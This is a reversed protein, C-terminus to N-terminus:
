RVRALARVQVVALFTPDAVIRAAEREITEVLDYNGGFRSIAVAYFADNGVILQNGEHKFTYSMSLLGSDTPTLDPIHGMYCFPTLAADSDLWFPRVM